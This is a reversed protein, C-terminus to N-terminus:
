AISDSPKDCYIKKRHRIASLLPEIHLDNPTCIHVIDIDPNETIERYDTTAVEAGCMAKAREATEQRSTAVHTIRFAADMPESYFPMAAYAYAHVKGIMGFGIIGTRYTRGDLGEHKRNMNYGSVSGQAMEQKYGNQLKKDITSEVRSRKHSFAPPAPKTPTKTPEKVIHKVINQM